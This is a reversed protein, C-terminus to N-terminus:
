KTKRADSCPSNLRPTSGVNYKQVTYWIREFLHVIGSYETELRSIHAHILEVGQESM